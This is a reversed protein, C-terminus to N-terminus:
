RRLCCMGVVSRGVVNVEVVCGLVVAFVVM